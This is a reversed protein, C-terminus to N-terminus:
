SRGADSVHRSAVPATGEGLLPKRAQRATLSRSAAGGGFMWAGCDGVSAGIIRGDDADRDRRRRRPRRALPCEGDVGVLWGAWDSPKHWDDYDSSAAKCAPPLRRRRRLPRHPWAAPDRCDQGRWPRAPSGGAEDFPGAEDAPRRQHGPAPSTPSLGSVREGDIAGSCRSGELAAGPGSRPRGSSM